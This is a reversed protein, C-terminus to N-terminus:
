RGSQYLATSKEKSIDFETTGIGKVGDGEFVADVKLCQKREHDIETRGSIM